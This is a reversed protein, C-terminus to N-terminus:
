HLIRGHPYAGYFYYWVEDEFWQWLTTYLAMLILLIGFWSAMEGRGMGVLYGASLKPLRLLVEFGMYSPQWLPPEWLVNLSRDFKVGAHRVLHALPYQKLLNAARQIIEDFPLDQPVKQVVSYIESFEAEVGLIRDRIHHAITLPFTPTLALSRMHVLIEVAVYVIVLPPSGILFDFLRAATYM